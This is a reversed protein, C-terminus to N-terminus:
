SDKGAVPTLHLTHCVLYSSSISFSNQNFQHTTHNALHVTGLVVLHARLVSHTAVGGQEEELVALLYTTQNALM